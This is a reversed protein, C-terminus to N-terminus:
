DFKLVYDNHRTLVLGAWRRAFAAVKDNDPTRNTGGLARPPRHGGGGRWARGRHQQQHRPQGRGVDVDRLHQGRVLAAERGRASGPGWVPLHTACPQGL